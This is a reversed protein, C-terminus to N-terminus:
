VAPTLLYLKTIDATMVFLNFFDTQTDKKKQKTKKQAMFHYSEVHRFAHSTHHVKALFNALLIQRKLNHWALSAALHLHSIVCNTTSNM